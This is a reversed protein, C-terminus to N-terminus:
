ANVSKYVTQIYYAYRMMLGIFDQITLGRPINEFDWITTISTLQLLGAQLGLQNVVVASTFKFQDDNMCKLKIGTEQDTYGQALIDEATLGVNDVVAKEDANMEVVTEGVIKWYKSECNPLLPNIIWNGDMYDPTNVNILYELTHKNIVNSM